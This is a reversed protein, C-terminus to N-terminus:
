ARNIPLEAAEDGASRKQVKVDAKGMIDNELQRHGKIAWPEDFDKTIRTSNM